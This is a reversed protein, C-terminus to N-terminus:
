ILTSHGEFTYNIDFYEGNWTVRMLEKVSPSLDTFVIVLGGKPFSNRALMFLSSRWGQWPLEEIVITLRDFECSLSKYPHRELLPEVIEKLNVKSSAVLTILRNVM